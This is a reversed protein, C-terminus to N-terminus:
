GYHRALIDNVVVADADIVDAVPRDNVLLDEFFRVPEEALADRM